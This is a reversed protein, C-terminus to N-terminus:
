DADPLPLPEPAQLGAGVVHCEETDDGCGCVNGGANDYHYDGEGIMSIVNCDLRAGSLTLASAFSSIGARASTDVLVGDAQVAAPGSAAICAIGDGYLGSAESPLTEHVAVNAAVLDSAFAVLGGERSKYVASDRVTASGREGLSPVDQVAVGQGRALVGSSLTDRVLVGEVTANSGFVGVGSERNGRVLTRRLELTGRNGTGTAYDAIVSIGDGFRGDAVPLNDRLVTDEVVASSAGVFVGGDTNREVVSGSLTLDSPAGSGPQLEVSFGRGFLGAADLQGDRVETAEVHVSSGLANIGVGHSREVVTARVTLFSPAMSTPGPEVSIGFGSMLAGGPLTDRVVSEEVTVAAGGAHVGIVAAREVLSRRITIATQGLVDVAEIGGGLTDHVWVRDVLVDIGGSMAMGLAPGTLAVDHLEFGTVGVLVTENKGPLGQLTVLRPCRGWLRVPRGYTHLNEAYTGAAIAVLAGSPAAQMAADITKWPRPESGDSDAGPYAGDVYVTAGDVPAAGWPGPECPAVERCTTEGPIAMTGDACPAPLVAVCGAEGDPEFGAACHDPPVGPPQCSGDELVVDGVACGAPPPAAVTDEESGCGALLVVLWLSPRGAM